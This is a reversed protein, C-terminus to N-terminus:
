DNTITTESNKNALLIHMYKKDLRNKQGSQKIRKVKNYNQKQDRFKYYIKSFKIWSEFIDRQLNNLESDTPM